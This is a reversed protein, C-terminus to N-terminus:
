ATSRPDAQGLASPVRRRLLAKKGNGKQDHFGVANCNSKPQPPKEEDIVQRYKSGGFVCGIAHNRSLVSEKGTKREKVFRGADLSEEAILPVGTRPCVSKRATIQKSSSPWSPRREIQNNFSLAGIRVLPLAM